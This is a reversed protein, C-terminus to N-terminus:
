ANILFFMNICKLVVDCSGVLLNIDGATHSHCKKNNNTIIIKIRKWFIKFYMLSIMDTMCYVFSIIVHTYKNQFIIMCAYAHWVYVILQIVELTNYLKEQLLRLIYFKRSMHPCTCWHM